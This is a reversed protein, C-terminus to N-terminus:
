KAIYGVEKNDGSQFSSQCKCPRYGKSDSKECVRREGFRGTTSSLPTLGRGVAAPAEVEAAAAPAEVAAEAAPAEM